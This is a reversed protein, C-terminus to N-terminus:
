SLDIARGYPSPPPMSARRKKSEIASKKQCEICHSQLMGTGGRRYFKTQSKRKECKPCFKISKYKSSVPRGAESVKIYRM